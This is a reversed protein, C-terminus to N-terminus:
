LAEKLSKSKLTFNKPSSIFAGEQSFFSEKTVQSKELAYNQSRESGLKIDGQGLTQLRLKQTSSLPQNSGYM